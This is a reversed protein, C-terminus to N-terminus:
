PLIFAIDYRTGTKGTSFQITGNLQEALINILQLGFSETNLNVKKSFGTGDDEVSLLYNRGETNKLSLSITGKERNSFAYKFSNSVIENVILGCPIATDIDFLNNSITIDFVLNIDKNKINYITFLSNALTKMYDTFDVGSIEKSRYLMDHILAMSRVRERSELFQQRTKKDSVFNAQLSLLSSIIQLNNKVRHHIEKVLADKERLSVTSARLEEGLMNIGAALADYVDHKKGFRAKKSFDLNAYSSIVKLVNSIRGESTGKM